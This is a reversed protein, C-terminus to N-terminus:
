PPRQRMRHITASPQDNAPQRRVSARLADRLTVPRRHKRLLDRFAEAALEQLNQGSELSYRHLAHWTEPDFEIRRRVPASMEFRWYVVVRPVLDPRRQKVSHLGRSFRM